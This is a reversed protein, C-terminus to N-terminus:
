IAVVAIADAEVLVDPHFLSAVGIVASATPHDTGIWRNRISRITELLAPKYDKVYINLRAMAEFGVGADSLTAAINRFVQDLQSAHDYGSLLGSSDFPAHGLLHLARSGEILVAQSASPIASETVNTSRLM